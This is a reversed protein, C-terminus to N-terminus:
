HCGTVKWIGIRLEESKNTGVLELFLAKIGEVWLEKWM